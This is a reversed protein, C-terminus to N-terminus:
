TRPTTTAFLYRHIKWDDNEKIFVFMENNGEDIVAGNELIVTKGKSSTRAWAKDGVMEIEHVTFAVNLKITSFVFNYANEVEKRGEQAVSHQPMFVPNRSYLEMVSNTDSTNLAIEYSQIVNEISMKKSEANVNFVTIILLILMNTSKTLRYKNM